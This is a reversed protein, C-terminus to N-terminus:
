DGSDQPPTIMIHARHTGADMLWPAGGPLPKDSLGTAASTAFPMYIVYRRFAEHLTATAAEYRGSYVYLMAKDPMALNGEEIERGRISRVQDLSKGAARLTRGRAMFPELDRHYCAASFGKKGPDDALIIMENSGKRLTVLEGQENYGMITAEARLAKPAAPLALEIQKAPKISYDGQGYVQLTLSLLIATIQISKM